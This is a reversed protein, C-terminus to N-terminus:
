KRLRFFQAAGSIPHTVVFQSGLVPPNSTVNTWTAAPNLDTSSQLIFGAYNTPWGIVIQNNAVAGSLLPLPSPSSAPIGKRIDCNNIEAVYVNGSSDVAVGDPFYFRAASGTGDDSGYAQALGALTTVLGAPTVKRITHNYYDAVYVNGSSDVAVGRPYEFRAASNTGDDGGLAGVLGALTTVVGTPTIKRITANGSDGVYVNGSSDVTVGFPANFRAASNTGDASGFTGALGALTTVVGAPTIKRITQNGTDAVYVNGSSDAAVGSPGNFRVASGTGDNTGSAGALGALTSVMGTPTIKRITHNGTDAVYINGPGDVAVGFPDYFRAVNTTGDTSGFAGALGALTTVVGAPTIKRITMNFTDAVYVNASGDVAVGYPSDFRAAIGTADVSGFSVALGALTTVVGASTVKRIAFSYYDAVYVTGSSDVAVGYPNYFRATKNTGDISGFSKALGALTTVVGTPTIKRITDNDTDAVYVTGSSDVAVGSPTNFRATSNTGDASGATRALGALNTVVGAPTIKRITQNGSDAVYVTGSSDVAVGFPANFRATTNTGNVSGAVGALGALTTVVGGPTIKRITNNGADGVYVNGTSDVAVGFPNNFRAASGTANTSGQVGALGALTTVVGAPTIKRITDNGSDAVYVNGSSDVAVGSPLSFRAASGTGDNTGSYGAVGALTTVVGAPTVKRITDNYTDAVYINGSSDLAVASPSSFRGVSGTGDAYGPGGISGAFHSFTYAEYNTAALLRGASLGLGVGAAATLLMAKAVWSLNFSELKM